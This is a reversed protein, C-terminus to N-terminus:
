RSPSFAMGEHLLGELDEFWVGVPAAILRGSGCTQLAVTLMEGDPFNLIIVDKISPGEALTSLIAVGWDKHVTDTINRHFLVVQRPALRGAIDEALPRRWIQAPHAVKYDERKGMHLHPPTLNTGLSWVEVVGDNSLVALLDACHSLMIHTPTNTVPLGVSAERNGQALKICYSSM